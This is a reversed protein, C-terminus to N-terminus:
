EQPKQPPVAGAAPTPASRIVQKLQVRASAHKVLGPPVAMAAAGADPGASPAVTARLGAPMFPACASTAAAREGAAQFAGPPSAMLSFERMVESRQEQFQPTSQIQAIVTARSARWRAYAARTQAEYGPILADYAIRCILVMRLRELAAAHSRSAPILGEPLTLDCHQQIDEGGSAAARQAQEVSAHFQTTSEIRTIVAARPGRWRDYAVKTDAWYAPNVAGAMARCLLVQRIQEVDEPRTFPPPPKAQEIAMRIGPPGYGYSIERATKGQNDKVDPDAGHALLLKVIELRHSEAYLANHLPTTGNSSRHNVDAGAEILLQAARLDGRRAAYALPTDGLYGWRSEANLDAGHRVLNRLMASDGMRAAEFVPSQEPGSLAFATGRAWANPDAHHQLLDDVAGVHQGAVAAALARAQDPDAGQALAQDIAAIDGAQAAVNLQADVRPWALASTAWLTGLLGFLLSRQM